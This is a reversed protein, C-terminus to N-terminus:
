EGQCEDDGFIMAEWRKSDGPTCSRHHEIEEVGGFAHAGCSNCIFVVGDETNMCTVNHLM